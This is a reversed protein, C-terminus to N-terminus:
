SENPDEDPRDQPPPQGRERSSGVLPRGPSVHAPALALLSGTRTAHPVLLLGTGAFCPGTSTKEPAVDRSRVVTSDAPERAPCHHPALPM